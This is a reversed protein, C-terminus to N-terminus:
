STVQSIVRQELNISYTELQNAVDELRSLSIELSDIQAFYPQLDQYDKLMELLAGQINDCRQTMGTYKSKLGMNIAELVKLDETNMMVENEVVEEVGTFLEEIPSVKPTDKQKIESMSM